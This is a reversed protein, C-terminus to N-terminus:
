KRFKFRYSDLIFLYSTSSSAYKLVPSFSNAIISVLPMLCLASSMQFPFATVRALLRVNDNDPSQLILVSNVGIFSWGYIFM